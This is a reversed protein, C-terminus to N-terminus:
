GQKGNKKSKAPVNELATIHLLSVHTSQEAFKPNKNSPEGVIIWRTGIMVLEPHHVDFEQGASTVIRFPQFPVERVRKDIDKATFM